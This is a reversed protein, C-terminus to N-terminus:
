LGFIATVGFSVGFVMLLIKVPLLFIFFVRAVKRMKSIKSWPRLGPPNLLNMM